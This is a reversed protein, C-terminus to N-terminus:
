QLDNKLEITKNALIIEFERDPSTLIQRNKAFFFLFSLVMFILSVKSQFWIWRLVQLVCSAVESSGRKAMTEDWLYMYGQDSVCDLIGFNYTWIQRLYFMDNHHLHPTPLNQQFDFTIMVIADKTM